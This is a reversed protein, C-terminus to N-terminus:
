ASATAAAYLEEDNACDRLRRCFEDDSLNRALGALMDLHEQQSEEPVLMVCLIDVGQADPADFEVPQALTILAGLAHTCNNVRCHPIAIGKGLGTNGLKERAVLAPFIDNAPLSLQEEAILKAALEFV